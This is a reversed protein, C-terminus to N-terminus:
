HQAFYYLEFKLFWIGSCVGLRVRLLKCSLLSHTVSNYSPDRYLLSLVVKFYKGRPLFLLALPLHRASGCHRSINAELLGPMLGSLSKPAIPHSARGMLPYPLSWCATRSLQAQTKFPQNSSHFSFSCALSLTLSM